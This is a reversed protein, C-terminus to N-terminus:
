TQSQLNLTVGAGWCQPCLRRGTVFQPPHGPARQAHVAAVEREGRCHGCRDRPWCMIPLAEATRIVQMRLERLRDPEEDPHVHRGIVDAEALAAEYARVAQEVEDGVSGQKWEGM